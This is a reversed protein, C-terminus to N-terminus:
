EKGKDHSKAFSSFLARSQLAAVEDVEVRLDHRATNWKLFLWTVISPHYLHM